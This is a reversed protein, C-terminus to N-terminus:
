SHMLFDNIASLYNIYSDNNGLSQLVETVKDEIQPGDPILYAAHCLEEIMPMLMAWKPLKLKRWKWLPYIIIQNFSGFILDNENGFIFTPSNDSCFFINLSLLPAAPPSTEIVKNVLFLAIEFSEIEENSLKTDSVISTKGSFFKGVKFNNLIQGNLLFM